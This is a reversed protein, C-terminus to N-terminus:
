DVGSRASSRGTASASTGVCSPANVRAAVPRDPQRIAPPDELVTVDHLCHDAARQEGALIDMVDVTISRVVTRLVELQPDGPLGVSLPHLIHEGPGV